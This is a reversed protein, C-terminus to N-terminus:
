EMPFTAGAGCTPESVPSPEKLYRSQDCVPCSRLAPVIFLNTVLDLLLKSGTTAKVTM